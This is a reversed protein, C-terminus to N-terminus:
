DSNNKLKEQKAKIVGIFGISLWCISMILEAGKQSLSTETVLAEGSMLEFVSLVLLVGGIILFMWIVGYNFRYEFDYAGRLMVELQCLTTTLVIILINGWMGEVLTIGNSKTFAELLLFAGMFLLGHKFAEGRIWLQREDMNNYRDM